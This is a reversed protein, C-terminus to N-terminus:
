QKVSGAALGQVLHKQLFVFLLYVPLAGLISAAMIKSWDSPVMVTTLFRTVVGVPITRLADNNIFVLAFLFENWCLLFTFMASAVLGPKALPLVVRIYSGFVTTGDIWAAEEISEPLSLFFGRLMWMCFPLAFTMYALILGLYKNNLHFKVILQFLPILLLVPPVVYTFLILRGITRKGKFSLRALSYGGMSAVILTCFTTVGAIIISNLYYRLYNTTEILSRYYELSADKPILWSLTQSLLNKSPIVSVILIWYIPFLIGILFLALIVKKLIGAAKIKIAYINRNM